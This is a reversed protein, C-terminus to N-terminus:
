AAAGAGAARAVQVLRRRHLEDLAAQATEPALELRAAIEGASADGDHTVLRFVRRVPDSVSGVVDTSGAPDRVVVALQHRELVFELSERHSPTVNLLVFDRADGHERLLRGVIEDACSLDLCGVTGFDIAAPQEHSLTALTDEIVQRVAQGTRRTVLDGYGDAVAQRLADRLSIRPM